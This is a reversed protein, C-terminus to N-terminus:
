QVAELVHVLAANYNGLECSHLGLRANAVQRSGARQLLQERLELLGYLATIQTPNGRSLCGGSTNIPTAGGISTDGSIAAQAGQGKACFGLAESVLVETITCPAYLEALDIDALEIAAEELAHKTANAAAPFATIDHPRDGIQHFGEHYFGRGKVTVYPKNLARANEELCLVLCIAGDARAPVELLGLPEVIPRQAVVEELTLPKRFQALPNDMAHQRSKVAVTAIQERTVGSDHMYRMADLAYWGIPPVGFPAQFDVDGVARVGYDMATAADVGSQIVVGLALAFQARGLQVDAAAQDFAVGGTIGMQSVEAVQGSCQMGLQALMFTGFGLQRTTPPPLTFIASDVDTVGIGAEDLAKLVINGLIDHELGEPLQEGKPRLRGVPTASAGVIAVRQQERPTM